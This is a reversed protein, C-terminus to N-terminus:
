KAQVVKFEKNWVKTWSNFDKVADVQRPIRFVRPSLSNEKNRRKLTDLIDMASELRYTLVLRKKHSM